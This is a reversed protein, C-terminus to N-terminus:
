LTRHVQLEALNYAAHCYDEGSADRCGRVFYEIQPQGISAPLTGPRQETADQAREQEEM